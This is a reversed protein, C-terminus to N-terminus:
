AHNNILQFFKSEFRHFTELLILQSFVNDLNNLSKLLCYLFIETADNDFFSYPTIFRIFYKFNITDSNNSLM